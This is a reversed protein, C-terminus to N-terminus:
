TDAGWEFHDSVRGLHISCHTLGCLPLKGGFLVLFYFCTAFGTLSHFSSSEIM